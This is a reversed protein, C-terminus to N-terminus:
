ITMSVLEFDEAAEDFALDILVLGFTLLLLVFDILQRYVKDFVDIHVQVNDTLSVVASPLHQLPKLLQSFPTM